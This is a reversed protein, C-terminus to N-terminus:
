IEVASLPLGFTAAFTGWFGDPSLDRVAGVTVIASTTFAFGAWTCGDPKALGAIQTGDDRTFTLRYVVRTDNACFVPGPPFPALAAIADYLAAIKAGDTVTEDFAAPPGERTAHLRVFPAISSPGATGAPLGVPAYPGSSPGPVAVDVLASTPVGLTAAFMDWFGLVGLATRKPGEDIVVAECGGPTVVAGTRVGDLQVFSLHYAVGLDVPCYMTGSPYPPLALLAAYLGDVKGRDASTADFAAVKNAPFASSRVARLAVV